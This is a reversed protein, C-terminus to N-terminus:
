KEEYGWLEMRVPAQPSPQQPVAAHQVPAPQQRTEQEDAYNRLTQAAYADPSKVEPHSAIYMEVECAKASLEALRGDMKAILQNATTTSLGLSLLLRRLAKVEPTDTSKKRPM